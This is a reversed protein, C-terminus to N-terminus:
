FYDKFDQRIALIGSHPLEFGATLSPNLVLGYNESLKGILQNGKLKLCVPAREKFAEMNESATFVALQLESERQFLLPEIGLGQGDGERASAIYVDESLFIKLFSAMDIEGNMLSVLSEELKNKPSFTPKYM